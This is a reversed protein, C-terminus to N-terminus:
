DAVDEPREGSSHGVVLYQGVEWLERVLVDPRAEGVPGLAFTPRDARGGGSTM